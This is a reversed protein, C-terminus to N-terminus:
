NEAPWDPLLTIGFKRSASQLRDVEEQTPPVIAEGQRFEHGAEELFKDFIAPTDILIYRASGGSVNMLQHPVGRQLFISQGATLQRPEGAVVATLEGEIVYITEDDDAHVHIPTKTNGESINELLCFQGNTQRGSLLPKMIVGALVFAKTETSGM